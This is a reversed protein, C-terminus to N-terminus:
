VLQQYGYLKMSVYKTRDTLFGARKYCFDYQKCYAIGSKTVTFIQVTANHLALWRYGYKPVDAETIGPNHRCVEMAHRYTRLIRVIGTRSEAKIIVSQLDEATPKKLSPNAPLVPLFIFRAVHWGRGNRAVKKM